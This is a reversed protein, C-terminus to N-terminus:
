LLKGVIYVDIYRGDDLAIFYYRDPKKNLFMKRMDKIKKSDKPKNAGTYEWDGYLVQHNFYEIM